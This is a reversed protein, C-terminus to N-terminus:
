QPLIRDGTLSLPLHAARGQSEGRLPGSRTIEGRPRSPPPSWARDATQSWQPGSDETAVSALGPLVQVTYILVTLSPGLGVEQEAITRARKAPVGPTATEM